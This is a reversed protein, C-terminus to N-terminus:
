AEGKNFNPFLIHKAEACVHETDGRTKMVAERRSCPPKREPARTQACFKQLSGVRKICKKLDM